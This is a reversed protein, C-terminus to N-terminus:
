AVITNIWDIVALQFERATTALANSHGTGSIVSARLPTHPHFFTREQAELATNSTPVRFIRDNRGTANMVPHEITSSLSSGTALAIADEAEATSVLDKTEEDVAVVQPNATSASYFAAARTGPRTTLWGPDLGDGRFKPDEAAPYLSHTSLNEVFDTDVVHTYGTLLTGDADHYTGSEVMAIIAGLSHGGLIVTTYSRDGVAGHRLGQIVGHVARVQADTTVLASAPRSSHGTGLRDVVMTAYGARNMAERFSYTAPEFPFDWYSGNYTAGPVLVLVVDSQTSDSPQCLTGHMTLGGDVTIGYRECTAAEASAAAANHKTLSSNNM